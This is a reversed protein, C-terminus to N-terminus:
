LQLDSYNTCAWGVGVATKVCIFVGIQGMRIAIENKLNSTTFGAFYESGQVKVSIAGENQTLGMNYIHCTVGNYKDNLPLYLTTDGLYAHTSINFSEELNLITGNGFGEKYIFPVSIKGTVEADIFKIFGNANMQFNVGEISGDAYIKLKASAPTEGGAWFRITGDGSMGATIKGTIDEITLEHSQTFRLKAYPAMIM